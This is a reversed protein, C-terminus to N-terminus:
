VDGRGAVLWYLTNVPYLAAPALSSLLRAPLSLQSVPSLVHKKGTLPVHPVVEKCAICYEGADFM